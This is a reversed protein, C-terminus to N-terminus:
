LSIIKYNALQSTQSNILRRSSQGRTPKDAFKRTLSSMVRQQNFNEM